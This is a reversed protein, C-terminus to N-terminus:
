VQAEPLQWARLLFVVGYIGLVCGLLRNVWHYADGQLRETWVSAVLAICLKAGILALLLSLAFVSGQQWGGSLVYFGGIGTWFIYPNPNLFNMKLLAGLPLRQRGESAQPARSRLTSVALRLLYLGGLTGIAVLWWHSDALQELLLVSGLIIPGDTMLPVVAGRAGAWFGHQLTQQIIMLNLPGPNFGSAFGLTLALGIGDGM